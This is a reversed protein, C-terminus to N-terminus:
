PWYRRVGLGIFNSGGEVGDFLGFVGSRHHIRVFGSWPSRPPTGEVELLLYNLLRASGEEGDPDGRPELPPTESAWSLGEGFAVRTDLWRDWPFRMWRAVLVANLEVHRQKGVHRVLQGEWEWRLGGTRHFPRGYAVSVLYSDQRGASLRSLIHVLRNQAHQGLYVSVQQSEASGVAAWSAAPGALVGVVIAFGAVRLARRPFVSVPEVM